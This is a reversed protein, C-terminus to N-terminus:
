LSTPIETQLDESLKRAARDQAEARARAEHDVAREAVLAFDESGWGFEFQPIPKRTKM